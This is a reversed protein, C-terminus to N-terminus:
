MLDKGNEITLGYRVYAPQPPLISESPTGRKWCARTPLSVALSNRSLNASTRVFFMVYAHGAFRGERSGHRPRQQRAAGPLEEGAIQIQQGHGDGEAAGDQEGDDLRHLHAEVVVHEDLRLLVAEHSQGVVRAKEVVVHEPEAEPVGEQPDEARHRELEQPPERGSKEKVLGKAAPGEDAGQ